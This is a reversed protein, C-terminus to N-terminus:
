RHVSGAELMCRITVRARPRGEPAYYRRCCLVACSLVLCALLSRPAGTSLARSAGERRLAPPAHKRACLVYHIHIYANFTRARTRACTRMMDTDRYVYIIYIYIYIDEEYAFVRIRLCAGARWLTSPLRRRRRARDGARLRPPGGGGAGACVRARVCARVVKLGAPVYLCV